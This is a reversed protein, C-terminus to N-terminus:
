VAAAVNDTREAFDFSRLYHVFADFDAGAPLDVPDELAVLWRVDGLDEPRSLARIKASAAPM